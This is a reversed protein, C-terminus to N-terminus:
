EGKCKCVPQAKLEEVQASLEQVAKILPYVFMEQSITQSGDKEENWGGFTDIGVNDLAQKVEQAIMGHLLTTTDKDNKEQYSDLTTPHENNPKWNFTVTRLDKIFSLGLTDDQINTKKREDSDRTWTNDTAFNNYIRGVSTKGFAFTNDGAGTLSAGIVIEVDDDVNQPDTRDGICIIEGGTTIADGAAYGICVNEAGTSIATGAGWGVATNNNATTLTDLATGGVATNNAGTTVAAFVNIGVGTNSSGTTCSGLADNGIGVNYQATTCVDGAGAGILVNRDGTTVAAGTNYGLATNNIATTSTTLSSQGIATNNNATTNADLSNHGLSTNNTGTTNSYLANTGVATNQGATTNLLLANAGFATNVEGTSNAGLANEGVGTNYSGTTNADLASVGVAVNLTGTTNATLSAYGVATNDDATTNALLADKGLATNKDGTTNTYFASQGFAVNKTGTTNAAGAHGGVAVNDNATTNAVLASVGVAVNNQGTNAGLASHGVATNNGLTTTADLAAYGVAVNNDGTTIATGAEDGVCVNYNGGSEITNGSNVGARFNSTGASATIIDAGDAFTVDAAFNVAGDVDVIDLNSTGDIDIDGSIDLSAGTLVGAVALTSAMDVAGDIDVVDLNATGDVDIDGAVTFGAAGVLKLDDASEDWLMYAGSTAGFFKVDQGTDDIGVTLTGGLELDELCEYVVAGSGLGDTTVIKALGAAIIVNAGSGQTFTLAYSTTNRIVWTHSLTNPALTVTCAQGGGTLRLLTCRFGDTAGDAMTITHTSADAVAETGYGMSEGILELNTNTTTGWTGSGDGTAMENLRLDNVYTSAM